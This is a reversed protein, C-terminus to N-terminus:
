ITHKNVLHEVHQSYAPLMHMHWCCPKSRSSVVVATSLQAQGGVEDLDESAVVM